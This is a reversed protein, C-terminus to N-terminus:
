GSSASCTAWSSRWRSGASAATARAGPRLRARRALVLLLVLVAVPAVTAATVFSASIIPLDALDHLV